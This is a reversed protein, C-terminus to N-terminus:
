GLFLRLIFSLVNNACGDQKQRAKLTYYIKDPKNSGEGTDVLGSNQFQENIQKHTLIDEGIIKSISRLISLDFSNTM